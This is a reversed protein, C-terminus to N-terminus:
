TSCRSATDRGCWAPTRFFMRDSLNTEARSLRDEASFPELAKMLHGDGLVLQPQVLPECSLQGEGRKCRSSLGEMDVSSNM